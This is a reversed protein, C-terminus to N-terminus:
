GDNKCEVVADLKRIADQRFPICFHTYAKIEWINKESLDAPCLLNVSGFKYLSFADLSYHHGDYDKVVWGYADLAAAPYQRADALYHRVKQESGGFVGVSVASVLGFVRPVIMILLVIYVVVGRLAWKIKVSIVEHYKLCVLGGPLLAGISLVFWFGFKDWGNAVNARSEYFYDIMLFPLVPGLLMLLMLVGLLGICCVIKKFGAGKVRGARREVYFRVVGNLTDVLSANEMDIKSEAAERASHHVRLMKVHKSYCGVVCWAITAPLIIAVFVSWWQLGHFASIMIFGGVGSVAMVFLWQVIPKVSGEVCDFFELLRTFIWSPLLLYIVTIIFFMLGSVMVVALNPGFELSDIFVDVRGIFITFVWLNFVGFGYVFFVFFTSDLLFNEKFHKFVPGFIHVGGSKRKTNGSTPM